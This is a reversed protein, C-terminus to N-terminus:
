EAIQPSLPLPAVAAGTADLVEEQGDAAPAPLYEINPGVPSNGIERPDFGGNSVPRPVDISEVNVRPTFFRGRERADQYAQGPWPGESLAVQNYNLLSGKERHFDRLALQYDVLSRYYASQSAALSQQAQILFNINDLGGKWRLYLSNTRELDAAQRNFNTELLTFSRKIQRAATSLDHSIRLEQEQLVAQEKALNWRANAIATGARRFGVSYGLELGAYWEQFDGEFLSQYMSRLPDSGDYSRILSDGLGNFRYQGVFDLRPKKNLCAAIMELERRKITWKQRRVEVRRTLADRLASEWDLIVEGDMPRTVPKLLTGDTAPLGVLYRLNQERAYLGNPGVLADKVQAEFTYYQSRAQAEDASIGAGEEFRSNEVQWTQLASQQGAVQTELNQYAYYLEWYASEVDNVFSIIGAEFDALSIDTNIRALLVGNYNGIGSNPGAIRNYTVGAGQLLPQRYEAEIEGYFDTNLFREFNIQSYAVRHRAAFSAGTATTKAVEYSFNSSVTDTFRRQFGAGVAFPNANNQRERDDWFLAAAVQADFASLAAEVGSAPNSETIATDFRSRSGSGSQVVSGGLTRLIESNSLALTVVEDLGVDRTTLESPNELALPQPTHAVEPALYSNVKPYEIKTAVPTHYSPSSEWTDTFQFKKIGACGPGTCLMLCVCMWRLALNERLLRM